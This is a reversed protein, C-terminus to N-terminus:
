TRERPKPELEAESLRSAVRTWICPDYRHGSGSSTLFGRRELWRLRNCAATPTIRLTTAIDTTSREAKIPIALLTEHALRPMPMRGTGQCRTCPVYPRMM